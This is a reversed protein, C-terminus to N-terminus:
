QKPLHLRIRLPTHKFAMSNPSCKVPTKPEPPPSTLDYLSIAQVLESADIPPSQKDPPTWTLSKSGLNLDSFNSTSYLSSTCSESFSDRRKPYKVFRGVVIKSVVAKEERTLYTLSKFIKEISREWALREELWKELSYETYVEYWPRWFDQLIYPTGMWVYECLAYIQFPRYKRLERRRSKLEAFTTIKLNLVM